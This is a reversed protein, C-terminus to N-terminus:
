LSEGNKISFEINRIHLLQIAIPFKQISTIKDSIGEFLPM